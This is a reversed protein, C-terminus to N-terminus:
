PKSDGGVASDLLRAIFQHHSREGKEGVNAPPQYLEIAERTLVGRECLLDEIVSLRDQVVYLEEALNMVVLMLRDFMPDGLFKDHAM